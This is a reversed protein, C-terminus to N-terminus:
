IYDKFHTTNDKNQMQLEPLNVFKEKIHKNKDFVHTHDDDIIIRFDQLVTSAITATIRDSLGFRDSSLAINKLNMRM